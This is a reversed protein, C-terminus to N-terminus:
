KRLSALDYKVRILNRLGATETTFALDGDGLRVASTANTIAATGLRQGTRADIFYRGYLLLTDRDLWILADDAGRWPNGGRLSGISGLKQEAVPTSQAASPKGDVQRDRLQWITLWAEGETDLLLAIRGEADGALALPSFPASGWNVDCTATPESQQKLAYLALCPQNSRKQDRGAVVISGDLAFAISRSAEDIALPYPVTSLPDIRSLAEPEIMPTATSGPAVPKSVDYLEFAVGLKIHARVLLTTADVFGEITRNGGTALPIAPMTAGGAALPISEIRFYPSTVLRVVRDGTANVSLPAQNFDFNRGIAGAPLVWRSSDWLEILGGGVDRVVGVAPSPVLTTVIQRFGPAVPLQEASKIFKRDDANAVLQEVPIPTPQPAIPAPVAVPPTNTPTTPTPKGPTTPKAPPKPGAVATKKDVWPAGIAIPSQFLTPNAQARAISAGAFNIGFILLAAVIAGGAAAGGVYAALMGMESPIARFLLLSACTTALVGVLIGLIIGPTEGGGLIFITGGVALTACACAFSRWMPNRPLNFRLADGAKTAAIHVLPVVCALFTILLVAYRAFGVGPLPQENVAFTTLSLWLPVGLALLVILWPLGLDVQRAFPYRFRLNTRLGGGAQEGRFRLADVDGKRRISVRGDADVSPGGARTGAASGSHTGEADEGSFSKELQDFDVNSGPVDDDFAQEPAEIRFVTQCQKCRVSKGAMSDPAQYSKGCSPCVAMVPMVVVGSLM